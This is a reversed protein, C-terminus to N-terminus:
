APGRFIGHRGRRLLATMTTSPASRRFSQRSSSRRGVSCVGPIPDQGVLPDRNRRTPWPQQSRVQGTVLLSGTVSAHLRPTSPTALESSFSRDCCRPGRGLRPLPHDLEQPVQTRLEQRVQSEMRHRVLGGLETINRRQGRSSAALRYGCTTQRTCRGHVNKTAARLAGRDGNASGPAQM